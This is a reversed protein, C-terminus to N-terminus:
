GRFLPTAGSMQFVFVRASFPDTFLAFWYRLWGIPMLLYGLVRRLVGVRGSSYFRCRWLLTAKHRNIEAYRLIRLARAADTRLTAEWVLRALDLAGPPFRHVASKTMADVAASHNGEFWRAWALIFLAYGDGAEAHPKCLRIARSTDRQGESPLLSLYGLAASAWPSGLSSLRELESIMRAPGHTVLLAVVARSHQPIYFPGNLHDRWLRINRGASAM